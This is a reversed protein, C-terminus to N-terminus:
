RFTNASMWIMQMTKNKKKKWLSKCDKQMNKRFLLGKGQSVRRPKNPSLLKRRLYRSCRRKGRNKGERRYCQPLASMMVLLGM